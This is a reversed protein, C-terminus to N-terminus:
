QYEKDSKPSAEQTVYLILKKPNDAPVLLALFGSIGLPGFGYCGERCDKLLVLLFGCGICLATAKYRIQRVCKHSRDRENKLRFSFKPIESVSNPFGFDHGDKAKHSM